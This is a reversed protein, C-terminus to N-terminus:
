EHSALSELLAGAAGGIAQASSRVDDLWAARVGHAAEIQEATIGTLDALDDVARANVRSGAGTLQRVADLSDIIRCSRILQSLSPSEDSRRSQGVLAVWGGSNKIRDLLHHGYRDSFGPDADPRNPSRDALQTTILTALGRDHRGGILETMRNPTPGFSSERGLEDIVLIPAAALPAIRRDGKDGFDLEGIAHARVFLGGRQLAAWTGAVSKGAGTNSALVLTGRPSAGRRSMALLAAARDEDGDDLARELRAKCRKAAVAWWRLVSGIATENGGARPRIDLQGPTSEAGARPTDALAWALSDLPYVTLPALASAAQPDETSDELRRALDSRTGHHSLFAGALRDARQRHAELADVKRPDEEIM